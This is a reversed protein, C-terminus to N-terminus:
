CVVARVGFNARVTGRTQNRVKPNLRASIPAYFCM